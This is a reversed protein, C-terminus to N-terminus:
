EKKLQIFNEQINYEIDIGKFKAKMQYEKDYDIFHSLERIFEKELSFSLIIKKPRKDYIVRFTNIMDILLCIIM